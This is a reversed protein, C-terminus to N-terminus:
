TDLVFCFYFSARTGRLIKEHIAHIPAMRDSQLPGVREFHRRAKRERIKGLRGDDIDFGGRRDPVNGHDSSRQEARHVSHEGQRVLVYGNRYLIRRDEAKSFQRELEVIENCVGIAVSERERRSRVRNSGDGIDREEKKERPRPPPAAAARAAVRLLIRNRVGDDRSAM